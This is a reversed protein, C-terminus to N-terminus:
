RFDDGNAMVPVPKRYTGSTRRWGVPLVSSTSVLRDQMDRVPATRGAGARRGPGTGAADAPRRRVITIRTTVNSPANEDGPHDDGQTSFKEFAERRINRKLRRRGRESVGGWVGFAEDQDLAWQLCNMRVACPRDGSYDVGICIGKAREIKANDRYEAFFLNAGTVGSGLCKAQDAWSPRGVLTRTLREIEQYAQDYPRAQNQQGESENTTTM